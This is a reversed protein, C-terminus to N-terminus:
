KLKLINTLSATKRGFTVSEISVVSVIADDDTAPNLTYYVANLSLSRSHM